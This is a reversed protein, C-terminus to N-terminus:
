LRIIRDARELVRVDHTVAIITMKLRVMNELVEQQLSDNLHATGEDLIMLKPKRYHARAIMVRQRQGSSLTSGLHHVVTLYQMPMRVIDDHICALRGASEVRDMDVEAGGVAINELLSGSFIGDDQMVVGIQRRYAATDLRGIEIGDIRIEGESPSLLKCLLKVFATKGAGSDGEIAIFEGPAVTLDLKDIVHGEDDNYAFSLSRVVVTGELEHEIGRRDPVSEREQLGIDAVRERHLHLMRLEVFSAILAHVRGTFMGRYSMFAFLMGLTFEADIVKVAVLLLMVVGEVSVISSAAFDLHIRFRALRAGTNISEVFRTGWADERQTETGLLKIARHSQINEIFSSREHAGAVILKHTLNRLSAYTGLNLTAFLVLFSCVVLTLSWSYAILIGLAGIAMLIDVLMTFAGTVLFRRIPDTSDFRSMVDGTHRAEFWTDPLRIMHHALGTVMRFASTNDVYQILLSRFYSLTSAILGVLGFGIALAAVIHIDGQRIGHDVTFQMNLPMVLAFVQLVVTMAFVAGLPKGLGRLATFFSSLRIEAGAQKKPTFAPTPALELAVGTFHKNADEFHVRRAGIAPDVIFISNRRVSKLVVFHDLDWHLIAPTRLQSLEGLEVRVARCKFDLQEALNRLRLLTMGRQSIRFRRRYEHMPARYGFYGAVMALCALGCEARDAQLIVPLRM